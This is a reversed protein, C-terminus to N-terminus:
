LNRNKKLYENLKKELKIVLENHKRELIPNDKHKDREHRARELAKEIRKSM